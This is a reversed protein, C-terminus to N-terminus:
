LRDIHLLLSFAWHKVFRICLNCLQTEFIFEVLICLQKHYIIGSNGGPVNSLGESSLMVPCIESRCLWVCTGGGGGVCVFPSGFCYLNLM